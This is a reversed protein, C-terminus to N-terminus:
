TLDSIIKKAADRRTCRSNMAMKELRRHAQPETFNLYKMLMSKARNILRIDGIRQMVEESERIDSFHITDADLLKIGDSITRRSVPKSLVLINYSSLKDALDDAIDRNCLFIVFAATKEAAYIALEAGSEDNVPSNIIIIDATINLMYRRAESGSAFASIDSYGMNKLTSSIMDATFDKRSVIIAKKM